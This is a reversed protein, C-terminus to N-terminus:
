AEPTHLADAAPDAPAPAGDGLQEELVQIAGSIRLLTDRLAAQRAQLEGLMQEGKEREQRLAELRAELAERM